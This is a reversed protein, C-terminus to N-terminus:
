SVYSYKTVTNRVTVLVKQIRVLTPLRIDTRSTPYDVGGYANIQDRVQYLSDYCLFPM